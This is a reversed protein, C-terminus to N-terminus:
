RTKLAPLLSTREKPKRKRLLERHDANLSATNGQVLFVRSNMHLFTVLDSPAKICSATWTALKGETIIKAFLADVEIKDTGTEALQFMLEELESVLQAMLYPDFSVEEPLRKLTRRENADDDARAADGGDDDNEFEDLVSRLVVYDDRVVFTDPHNELFQRFERVNQGSVHRIKSSAQSRHGFLSKLPVEANGYFHLKDIFFDITEQVYNCSDDDKAPEIPSLM